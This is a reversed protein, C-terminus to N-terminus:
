GCGVLVNLFVFVMVIETKIGLYPYSVYRKEILQKALDKADNIPIAYGMSEANNLRARNIGIVEAKMNLLAGGSNGSNIPADTQIYKCINTGDDLDVNLNSVIGKTVSNEQGRANGIAVVEEGVKIKTSDAFQITPLNEGEVKIVALDRRPDTGIRKAQLTRKDSLHVKYHEV